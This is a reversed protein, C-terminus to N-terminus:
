NNQGNLLKNYESSEIIDLAKIFAHDHENRVKIEDSVGSYLFGAIQAKINVSLIKTIDNRTKQDSLIGASETLKFINDILNSPLEFGKIFKKSNPYSKELKTRNKNVFEFAEKDIYGAATVRQIWLSYELTDIPIYYDPTIGGGGFVTRKNVLTSYKLSDKVAMYKKDQMEGSSFRELIESNYDVNKYPKQLSRGSPTYYRAKTLQLVSGDFLPLPYQMLGKGFSRRGVIVARDWDQLAGSLIESASATYQDILLILRGSSFHGLGSTYYYDRQENNGVSYYVLQDKKLFEDAAGIAAEVLGGGNGRLDLVLNEMGEKKLRILAEDLESRTTMSFVRLLIYGTQETVMYSAVISRDPVTARQVTKNSVDGKLNMITLSVPTDGKGQIRALIDSNKMKVGSIPEGDVKLVRDGSIIGVKHSPGDTIVNTIYVTDDQMVFQVGIGVFSGKVSAQMRQAEERSFYKSHPDLKEIISKIAIDVMEEDDIKDVYNDKIAKLAANFKEKPNVQGYAISCMLSLIVLIGLQKRRIM